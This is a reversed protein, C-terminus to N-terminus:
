LMGQLKGLDLVNQEEKAKPTFIAIVRDIPKPPSSDPEGPRNDLKVKENIEKCYKFFARAGDHESKSYWEDLLPNTFPTAVEFGMKGPFGSGTWAGAYGYHLWAGDPINVKDGFDITMHCNGDCFEPECLLDAHVGCFALSLAYVPMEICWAMPHGGIFCSGRIINNFGVISNCLEKTIHCSKYFVMAGGPTYFEDWKDCYLAKFLLKLDLGPPLKTGDEMKDSTWPFTKGPLPYGCLWHQAIATHRTPFKQTNVFKLAFLDTDTLIVYKYNKHM